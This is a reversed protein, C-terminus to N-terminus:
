AGRRAAARTSRLRRRDAAASSGAPSARRWASTSRTSAAACRSASGNTPPPWRRAAVPGSGRRRVAPRGARRGARDVRTSRRRGRTPPSRSCGSARRARVVDLGGESLRPLWAWPFAYGEGMAVRAVRRYLPDTCSPDLLVADIGLGAASRIIVGLNTPNSVRELVIVRRAAALRRGRRCPGATSAPSSATTSVSAPSGACCRPRRRTSPCTTTSARRCRTPAPPTSWRPERGTGPACRGSSWSTARPSSCGTPRCRAAGRDAARGARPGAARRVRRHAPRRPRRRRCADAGITAARRPRRCAPRDGEPGHSGDASTAARAAVFLRGVVVLAGLGVVLGFAGVLGTGLMVPGSLAVSWTPPVPRAGDPLRLRSLRLVVALVVAVATVIVVVLLDAWWGIAAAVGLVVAATALRVLPQPVPAPVAVDADGPEGPAPRRSGRRRRSPAPAGGVRYARTRDPPVTGSAPAGAPGPPDPATPAVDPWTSGPVTPGAPDPATPPLGAHAPRATPLGEHMPTTPPLDPMAPDATAGGAVGPAVPPGGAGDSSSAGVPPAGPVPPATATAPAITGTRMAAVLTAPTPREGPAVSMAAAVWPALWGPRGALDVEGRLIRHAVVEPGSGGVVPYGLAAYAMVAGWSWVDGAATVEDHTLREPAMWAPTGVRAGTETIVAAGDYWAIGFDVVRPGDPGLVVNRPTLDRHVVGAAHIPSSRRPWRRRRAGARAADGLAGHAAVHEALTPGAVYASALWPQPPTSTPTSCRPSPRDPSVRRAAQVERAFRARAAPDDVRGPDLLKLAVRRPAGGSAGTPDEALWVEGM